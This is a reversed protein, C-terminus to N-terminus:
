LEQRHTAAREQYPTAFGVGCHAIPRYNIIKQALAAPDSLGSPTTMPRSVVSV